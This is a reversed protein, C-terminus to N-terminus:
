STAEALARAAHAAWGACVVLPRGDARWGRPGHLIPRYDTPGTLFGDQASPLMRALICANLNPHAWGVLGPMGDHCHFPRLPDFSEPLGGDNDRREPSGPRYACDTCSRARLPEPGHQLADETPEPWYIPEWAACDSGDPACADWCPTEDPCPIGTTIGGCLTSV